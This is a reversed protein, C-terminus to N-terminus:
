GAVAFGIAHRTTERRRWSPRWTARDSATEKPPLRSRSGWPTRYLHDRLPRRRDLWAGSACPLFAATTGPVSVRGERPRGISRAISALVDAHRVPRPAAAIRRWAAAAQEHTRVEASRPRPRGMWGRSVRRIATRLPEPAVRVAAVPCEAEGAPSRRRRVRNGHNRRVVDYRGADCETRPKRTEGKQRPRVCARGVACM